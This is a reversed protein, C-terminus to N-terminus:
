IKQNSQLKLLKGHMYTWYISLQEDLESFGCDEHSYEMFAQAQKIANALDTVEIQRGNLDTINM